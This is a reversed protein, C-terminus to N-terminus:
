SILEWFTDNKQFHLKYVPVMEVLIKILLLIKKTDKSDISWYFVKDMLDILADSKSLRQRKNVADKYLLQISSLSYFTNEETSQMESRFPSNYIRIDNKQIKVITAEDSLLSRPLSLFAATSKGAGSHGSFIHAKENDIVCSSHILVGWQKEVIFASYLNILAHKLSFIDHAYIIALNYQEKIEILYDSRQFSVHRNEKVTKVEYNTFKAGYGEYVYITMDPTSNKNAVKCFSANIMKFFTSSSTITRFHHEGITSDITYM